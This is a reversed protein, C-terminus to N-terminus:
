QVVQQGFTELVSSFRALEAAGPAAIQYSLWITILATALCAMVTVVAIIIYKNTDWFNNKSFELEHEKYKQSQWNRMYQPVVSLTANMKEGPLLTISVPIYVDKQKVAYVNRGPYVVSEDFAPMTNDRGFLPFLAKWGKKTKRFRNKRPLGVTHPHNADGSGMVEWYTMKIPHFLYFLVAAGVFLLVIIIVVFTLVLIVQPLMAAWDIAFVEFGVAM